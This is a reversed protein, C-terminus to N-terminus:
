RGPVFFNEPNPALDIEPAPFDTPVPNEKEWIALAIRIRDQHTLAQGEPPLVSADAGVRALLMLADAREAHEEEPNPKDTVYLARDVVSLYTETLRAVWQLVTGADMEKVSLSVKLNKARVKPDVVINLRALSAIFHLAEGLDTDVFELSLRRQMGGAMQGAWDLQRDAVPVPARLAPPGDDEVVRGIEFTPKPSDAARRAATEEAATRRPLLALLAAREEDSFQRKFFVIERRALRKEGTATLLTLTDADEQLVRGRHTLGSFLRAEILVPEEAAGAFGLGWGLGLVLVALVRM